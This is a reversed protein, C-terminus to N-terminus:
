HQSSPVSSGTLTEDPPVQRPLPEAASGAGEDFSKCTFACTCVHTYVYIDTFM